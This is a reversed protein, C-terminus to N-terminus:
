APKWVPRKRGGVLPERDSDHGCPIPNSGLLVGSFGDPIQWSNRRQGPMVCRYGRGPSYALKMHISVLGDQEEPCGAYALSRLALNEPMDGAEVVQGAAIHEARKIHGAVEALLEQLAAGASLQHGVFEGNRHPLLIDVRLRDQTDVFGLLVQQYKIADRATGPLGHREVGVQFHQIDDMQHATIYVGHDHAHPPAGQFLIAKIVGILFDNTSAKLHVFIFGCGDQIVVRGADNVFNIRHSGWRHNQLPDQVDKCWNLIPM